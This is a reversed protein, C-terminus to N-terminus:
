FSFFFFVLVFLHHLFILFSVFCINLCESLFLSLYLVHLHLHHQRNLNHFHIHLLKYQFSSLFKFNIFRNLLTIISIHSTSFLPKNLWCRCQNLVLIHVCKSCLFLLYLFFIMQADGSFGIFITSKTTNWKYNFLKEGNWNVFTENFLQMM